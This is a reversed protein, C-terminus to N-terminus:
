SALESLRQLQLMLQKFHSEWVERNHNTKSHCSWCLLVLNSIACNKKNYDIHHIPKGIGGREICKHNYYTRIKKKFEKSWEKGYPEYQIGGKWLVSKEGRQAKSCKEWYETNQWLKKVSDSIKKKVEPNNNYFELISKRLKNKSKESMPIGKNWSAKGKHAISLKKKHEETLKCGARNGPRRGKKTLSIKKKHEQTLVAGKKM